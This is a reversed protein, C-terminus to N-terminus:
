IILLKNGTVLATEASRKNSSIRREMDVSRSINESQKSHYKNFNGEILKSLVESILTDGSCEITFNNKESKKYQVFVM